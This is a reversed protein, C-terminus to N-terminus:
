VDGAKRYESLWSDFGGPYRTSLKEINEQIVDLPDMGLATCANMWYWLIDGLERKMHHANEHNYEKGQFVIKKVIETFEGSEAPLGVAATMLRSIDVGKDALERIRSIFADANKSPESTLSDVFHRYENINKFKKEM